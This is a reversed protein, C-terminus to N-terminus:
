MVFSRLLRRWYSTAVQRERYQEHMGQMQTGSHYSRESRQTQTSSLDLPALRESDSNLRSGYLSEVLFHRVSDLSQQFGLAATHADEDDRITQWRSSPVRETETEEGSSSATEDFSTFLRRHYASDGLESALHASFADFGHAKEDASHTRPM